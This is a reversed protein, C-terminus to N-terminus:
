TETYSSEMPQFSININTILTVNVWLNLQLWHESFRSRKPDRKMLFVKHCSNAAIYCCGDKWAFSDKLMITALLSSIGNVKKQQTNAALKCYYYMYIGIAHTYVRKM